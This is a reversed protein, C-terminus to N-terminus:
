ATNNWIVWGDVDNNWGNRLDRVAPQGKNGRDRLGSAKRGSRETNGVVIQLHVAGQRDRVRERNGAPATHGQVAYQRAFREIVVSVHGAAPGDIRRPKKQISIAKGTGPRGDSCPAERIRPKDLGGTIQM